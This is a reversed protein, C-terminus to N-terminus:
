LTNSREIFSTRPANLTFLDYLASFEDFTMVGDGDTDGEVFLERMVDELRDWIDEFIGILLSNFKDVSLVQKGDKIMSIEKVRLKCDFMIKLQDLNLDEAIKPGNNLLVGIIM